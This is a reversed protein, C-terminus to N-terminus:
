VVQTMRLMMGSRHMRAAYDPNTKAAPGTPRTGRGSTGTSTTTKGVSEMASQAADLLQKAVEPNVDKHQHYLGLFDQVLKGQETKPTRKLYDDLKAKVQEKTAGPTEMLIQLDAMEESPTFREAASKRKSIREEILKDAGVAGLELDRQTQRQAQAYQNSSVAQATHQLQQQRAAEAEAM